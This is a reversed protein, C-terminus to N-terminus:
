GHVFGKRTRNVNGRGDIFPFFDSLCLKVLINIEKVCNILNNLMKSDLHKTNMCVQQSVSRKGV